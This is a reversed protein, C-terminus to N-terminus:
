LDYQTIFSPNDWESPYYYIGILLKVPATIAIGEKGYIKEQYLNIGDKLCPLLDRSLKSNSFKKIEYVEVVNLDPDILLEYIAFHDKSVEYGKFNEICMEPFNFGLHFDNEPAIQNDRLYRLVAIKQYTSHHWDVDENWKTHNIGPDWDLSRNGSCLNFHLENDNHKIAFILWHTGVRTYIGCESDYISFVKLRTTPSGKFLEKIEIGVTHQNTSDSDKELSNIEVVAIFDSLAVLDLLPPPNCVCGISRASCGFVLLTCLLLRGVLLSNSRKWKVSEM